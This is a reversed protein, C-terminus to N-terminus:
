RHATKWMFEGDGGEMKEDRKVREEKGEMSKEGEGM